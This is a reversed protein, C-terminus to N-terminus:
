ILFTAVDYFNGACTVIIANKTKSFVWKPFFSLIFAPNKVQETDVQYDTFM